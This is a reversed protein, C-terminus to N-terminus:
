NVGNLPTAKPTPTPKPTRTPPPTPPIPIPFTPTVVVPPTPKRPPTPKPKRTPKPRPTPHGPSLSTPTPLWKNVQSPAFGTADEGGNAVGDNAIEGESVEDPMASDGIFSAGLVGRELRTVRWGRPSPPMPYVMGAATPPELLVPLSPTTVLSTTTLGDFNGLVEGAAHVSPISSFCVVIGLCAILAMLRFPNIACSGM